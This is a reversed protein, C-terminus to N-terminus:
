EKSPEKALYDKGAQWLKIGTYAIACLNIIPFSGSVLYVGVGVGAHVLHKEMDERNGHYRTTSRKLARRAEVLLNELGAMKIMKKNTLNNQIYVQATTNVVIM